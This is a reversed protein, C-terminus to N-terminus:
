AKRTPFTAMSQGCASNHPCQDYFWPKDGALLYEFNKEKVRQVVQRLEESFTVRCHAENEATSHPIWM